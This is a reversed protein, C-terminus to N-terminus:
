RKLTRDAFAIYNTWDEPTIEHPGTRIHYGIRGGIPHDPRPMTDTELGKYGFLHYVRDAGRAALFEGKPDSWWDETASAVYVPRPAILAILEHADIPLAEARSAYTKFRPAFWYDNMVRITEGFDRRYLAAGGEGSDNSVVMAFRPDVAGAWLAAKGYRSHGIAIVRHEDVDPDTVLYDCARSLGWAWTAIVGWHDPASPSIPYHPQISDARKGDGDPYLDGPFFTAVGYGAALIQAIPWEGAEIGRSAETARHKVIGKGPAAVWGTAIHIAPDAAVAQNGHFNLGVFVPVPGKAGAPLYLLLSTQPGEARGDFLLTVQKRVARGDLAHRDLDTVEVRMHEPAPPVVGYIHHTFLALLEPRRRTTWQEASTVRTGDAMVLPDPLTYAGVKAEDSNGDLQASAPVALLLAFAALAASSLLSSARTM